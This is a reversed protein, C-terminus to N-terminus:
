GNEHATKALTESIYANRSLCIISNHAPDDYYQSCFRVSLINRKEKRWAYVLFLLFITQATNHQKSATLATIKHTTKTDCQTVDSVKVM